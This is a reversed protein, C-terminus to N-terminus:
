MRGIDRHLCRQDRRAREPDLGIDRLTHEPLERLLFRRRRTQGIGAIRDWIKM